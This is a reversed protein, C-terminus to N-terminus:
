DKEWKRSLKGKQRNIIYHNQEALELIQVRLKKPYFTTIINFLRKKRKLIGIDSLIERTASACRMGFFAYDYPSNQCYEQHIKTLQTYQEPTLPVYVTTLKKDRDYKPKQQIKQCVFHSKLHKQHPFLHFGDLPEFGYDISDVEISIHGGHLGGFYKPETNKYGKAPKSGYLFHIKILHLSDNQSFILASHFFFILIWLCISNYKRRIM